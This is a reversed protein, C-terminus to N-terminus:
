SDDLGALLRLLGANVEDPREQQVWHNVGELVVVDRLDTVLGEMMQAPMFTAVPDEVKDKKTSNKEAM